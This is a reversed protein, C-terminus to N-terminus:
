RPPASLAFREIFSSLSPPPLAVKTFLAAYEGRLAYMVFEEQLYAIVGICRTEPRTQQGKKQWRLNRHAWQLNAACARRSVSESMITITRYISYLVCNVNVPESLNLVCSTGSPPVIEQLFAGFSKSILFSSVGVLKLISQLSM